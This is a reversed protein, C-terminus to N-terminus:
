FSLNSLSEQSKNPVVAKGFFHNILNGTEDKYRLRFHMKQSVTETETLSIKFDGNIDVGIEKISRRIVTEGHFFAEPNEVILTADTVDTVGLIDQLSTYVMCENISEADPNAFNYGIAVASIKPTTSGDDSHMFMLLHVEPGDSLDLSSLAANIEAITNSEGYTQGDTVTWAAGNHYCYIGAIKINYKVLDSGAITSDEEILTIEDADIGSDNEITPNDLRYPVGTWPFDVQDVNSITNLDTFVATVDLTDSVSLTGINAAIDAKSSAQAYSNDSDEWSDGDWYKGNVVYKVSGTETSTMGDFGQISSEDDYSFQPLDVANEVYDANPVSYGPTYNATEQVDDFFQIDKLWWSVGSNNGRIRFRDLDTDRVCPEGTSCLDNQKVGNIFAYTKESGPTLDWCVLFEVEQDMIPLFSSLQNEIQAFGNKDYFALVLQGGSLHRFATYNELNSAGPGAFLMFEQTSGPAGAYKFKITQKFSGKIGLGILHNPDYGVRGAGAAFKYWGDEVTGTNPSPALNAYDAFNLNGDSSYNAGLICNAPRQNIQKLVGSDFEAKADDYTFGTDSTFAQSFNPDSYVYPLHQAQSNELKVKTADFSFNDEIDFNLIQTLSM